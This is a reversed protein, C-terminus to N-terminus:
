EFLRKRMKNFLIGGLAKTFIDALQEGTNVYVLKIINRVIKEKIFSQKIELHKVRSNGIDMHTMKITSQNDEFLTVPGVNIDFDALIDKLWCAESSAHSLAVFEAETSSLTVSQQKKSFWIVTCGFLKFCCGTQGANKVAVGIVILM